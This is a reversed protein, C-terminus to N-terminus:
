IGKTKVTRNCRAGFTFAGLVKYSAISKILKWWWYPLIHLTHYKWCCHWKSRLHVTELFLWGMILLGVSVGGWFHGKLLKMLFSYKYCKTTSSSFSPQNSIRLLHSWNALKRQFSICIFHQGDEGNAMPSHNRALSIDSKALQTGANLEPDVMHRWICTTTSFFAKRVM